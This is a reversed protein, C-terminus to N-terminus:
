GLPHGRAANCRLLRERRLQFPQVAVELRDELLLGVGLGDAGDRREGLTTAGFLDPAALYLGYYMGQLEDLRGDQHLAGLPLEFRGGRPPTVRCERRLPRETTNRGPQERTRMAAARGRGQHDAPVVVATTLSARVAARDAGFVEARVVADGLTAHVTLRHAVLVHAEARRAAQLVAGAVLTDAGFVSVRGARRAQRRAAAAAPDDAVAVRLLAVSLRRLAAAPQARRAELVTLAPGVLRHAHVLHRLAGAAGLRDARRMLRHADHVSLHM